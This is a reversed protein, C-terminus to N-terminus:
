KRHNQLKQLLESSMDDTYVGYGTVLIGKQGSKSAIAYVVAEDGPDSNGEYRYVDEIEFDEPRFQMNNCIICNEELNFDETYGKQRLKEIAESVTAYHLPHDM